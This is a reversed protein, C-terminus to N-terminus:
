DFDLWCARRTLNKWLRGAKSAENRGIKVPSLESGRGLLDRNMGNPLHWVGCTADDAEVGITEFCTVIAPQPQGIDWPASGFECVFRWDLHHGEVVLERPDSRRTSATIPPIHCV